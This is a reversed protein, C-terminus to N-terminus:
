LGSSYDAFSVDAVLSDIGAVADFAATFDPAAPAPALSWAFGLVMVAACGAALWRLLVPSLLPRSPSLRIERLVRRSFYPSVEVPCARGLLGWLGDNAFDDNM